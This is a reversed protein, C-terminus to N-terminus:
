AKPISAAALKAGLAKAVAKSVFPTVDGGMRAIDRVHTSAIAQAAGHALLFVTEIDPAMGANMGAMQSEYSLDTVDRLGKLIAGAGRERAFHVLLGSFPEVIIKGMGPKSLAACEAKVLAIREDASFFPNKAPNLGVGVYLMDFLHAGRAIINAHGLTPPDFTGPYVAIRQM